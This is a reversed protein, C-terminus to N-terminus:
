KRDKGTRSNLWVRAPTGSGLLRKSFAYTRGRLGVSPTTVKTLM